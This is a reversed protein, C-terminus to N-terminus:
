GGLAIVAQEVEIWWQECAEALSRPDADIWEEWILLADEPSYDQRVRRQIEEGYLHLLQVREDFDVPYMRKQEMIIETEIDAVGVAGLLGSAFRAYRHEGVSRGIESAELCREADNM